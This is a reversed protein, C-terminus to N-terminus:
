DRPYQGPESSLYAEVEDEPVWVVEHDKDPRGRGRRTYNGDDDLLLAVKDPETKPQAPTGDKRPRGPSQPVLSKAFQAFLEAVRSDVFAELEAVLEDTIRISGHDPLVDAVGGDQNAAAEAAEVGAKTARNVATKPDDEKWPPTESHDEPVEPGTVNAARPRGRRAPKAPADAVEAPTAMVHKPKETVAPPGQGVHARGKLAEPDEVSARTRRSRRAPTPEPEPEPEPKDEFLVDDMGATLDKVPIELEAAIRVLRETDEDGDEGWLVVLYLQTDALDEPPAALFHDLDDVREVGEPGFNYESQLWADVVKLGKHDRPIKTPLVIAAVHAPLKNPGSNLLAEVNETTVLGPGAFVYTRDQENTDTM